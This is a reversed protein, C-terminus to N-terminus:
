RVEPCAMRPGRWINKMASSLSAWCGTDYRIIKWEEWLGDPRLVILADTRTGDANTWQASCVARRTALVEVVKGMSEDPPRGCVDGVLGRVEQLFLESYAPPGPEVGSWGDADAAPVNCCSTDIPGPPEPPQPPPTPGCAASFLLVAGLFWAWAFRWREISRM